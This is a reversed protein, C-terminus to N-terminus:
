AFISFSKALEEDTKKFTKAANELEDILQLIVEQLCSGVQYVENLQQELAEKSKGKSKIFSSSCSNYKDLEKSLIKLRQIDNKLKIYDVKIELKGM